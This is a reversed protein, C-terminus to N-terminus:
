FFLKIVFYQFKNEAYKLLLDKINPLPLVNKEINGNFVNKIRKLFLDDSFEYESYCISKKMLFKRIKPSKYLKELILALEEASHPFKIIPPVKLGEFRAENAGIVVCGCRMAECALTGWITGAYDILIDAEQLNNIVEENSIETKYIFDIKLSKKSLIEIAQLVMDTNKVMPNSPFHCVKMYDNPKRKNNQILKRFPTRFFVAPVKLFTGKERSSHVICFKEAIKQRIFKAIFDINSSKEYLYYNSKHGFEQMLGKHIPAYRIDSGCYWVLVKKKMIHLLIFDLNLPFFSDKWFFIYNECKFIVYFFYFFLYIKIYIFKLLIFKDIYLPASIYNYNYSQNFVNKSIFLSIVESQSSCVRILDLANTALEHMGVFYGKGGINLLKFVYAIILTLFFIPIFLIYVLLYFTKSTYYYMFRFIDVALKHSHYINKINRIM